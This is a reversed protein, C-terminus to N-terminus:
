SQLEELSPTISLYITIIEAIFRDKSIITENSLEVDKYAVSTFYWPWDIQIASRSSACRSEPAVGLGGTLAV